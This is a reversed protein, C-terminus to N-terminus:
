APALLDPLRRALEQALRDLPNGAAPTLDDFATALIDPTLGALPMERAWGRTALWDRYEVENVPLSSIRPSAAVVPKRMWVTESLMSSSDSTCVVRDAVAFLRGLTGPGASRVDIFEAIAGNTDGCLRALRDSVAAPSRPSNAAIWRWGLQDRCGEVLAVLSDWDAQSYRITGSDGGVILGALGASGGGLDDGLSDPDHRSPKLWMLRNPADAQSAYSTMVLAFDGARYRRLSGYFINPAGTARAAAVNAALTDGGASVIVDPAGLWAPDLRYVSRLIREPALGGNVLASLARAPMWGPRRVDIRAVDVERRRALAAVIGESLNFHGPRGDTILLARLPKRDNAM